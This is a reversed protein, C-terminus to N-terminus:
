WQLIMESLHERSNAYNVYRLLFFINNNNEDEAINRLQDLWNQWMDM